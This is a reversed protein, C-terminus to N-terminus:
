TTIDHNAVLTICVVEAPCNIRYPVEVVGVGQSTIVPTSDLQNKGQALETFRVNYFPTGFVPLRIQGGHTHGCLALECHLTHNRNLEFVYDPNHALLLRFTREPRQALFKPSKPIGTWYDDAGFIELKVGNATVLETNNSLLFLDKSDLYHAMEFPASWRDHNGFVSFTGYPVKLKDLYERLLSFILKRTGQINIADFERHRNARFIRSIVSDPVWIFDGGLALLDPKQAEILKFTRDLLDLDLAPGIHLDSVFAIKFGDLAECDPPLNINFETLELDSTTFSWGWATAPILTSAGLSAALFARRSIQLKSKKERKM